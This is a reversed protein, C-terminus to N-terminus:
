PSTLLERFRLTVRVFEDTRWALELADADLWCQKLFCLQRVAAAIFGVSSDLTLV